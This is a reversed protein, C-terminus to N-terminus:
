RGHCTHTLDITALHGARSDDGSVAVGTAGGSVMNLAAERAVARAGKGSLESWGPAYLTGTKQAWDEFSFGHEKSYALTALIFSAVNGQARELIDQQSFQEEDMAQGEKGELEGGNWSAQRCTIERRRTAGADFTPRAARSLCLM